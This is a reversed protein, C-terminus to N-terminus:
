ETDLIPPRQKGFGTAAEYAQGMQLVGMDDRMRGVIQLGIPLGSATFGAPVSLAPNGLVSIYYCSKMWAIYNPMAVGNIETVYPQTVDFPPVQTVPLMMFDYRQMFERVRQWLAARKTEALAIDQATLKLGQEYNWLITDKLQDRHREYNERHGMLFGYARLTQFVEDADRFDPTAEEVICGLSEFTSRQADVVQRVQPDFVVGPLEGLWAVRVGKWDRQPLDAFQTPDDTLSLAARDDAGAIASLVLAVDGVTRAMPGEVGLANWLYNTPWSPVRGPSPRFGVVNCFAAPNRLSGGVDSGDAIPLMGCALAVAAGGSSGGCTKTVDYSNLTAGFVRNFTQSGAGFEPVNTKGFTIAGATHLREVILADTQPVHDKFIPSGYTTRIGATDVVDKHAIPLGHLPGVREGKALMEDAQQAHALAREPLLTVIANVKPNITAIQDLHAQMVAKASVERQRIM